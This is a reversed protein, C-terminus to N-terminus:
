IVVVRSLMKMRVEPASSRRVHHLQICLGLLVLVVLVLLVLMLLVLLVLLPLTGTADLSGHGLVVDQGRRPRRTAPVVAQRRVADHRGGRVSAAAVERVLLQQRRLTEVGLIGQQGRRHPAVLKPLLGHRPRHRLGVHQQGGRRDYVTVLHGLRVRLGIGRVVGVVRQHDVVLCGRGLPLRKGRPSCM